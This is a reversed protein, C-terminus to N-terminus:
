LTNRPWGEKPFRAFRCLIIGYILQHHPLHGAVLQLPHQAAGGLEPDAAELGLEAALGAHVGAGGPAAMSGSINRIIAKIYDAVQLRGGLWCDPRTALLLFLEGLNWKRFLRRLASSGALSSSNRGSVSAAGGSSVSSSASGLSLHSDWFLASASASPGTSKVMLFSCNQELGSSGSLSTGSMPSM